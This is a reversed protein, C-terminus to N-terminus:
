YTLVGTVVFACYTISVEWRQWLTYSHANVCVFSLNFSAVQYLQGKAIMCSLHRLNVLVFMWRYATIIYNPKDAQESDCFFDVCVCACM